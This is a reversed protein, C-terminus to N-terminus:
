EGQVINYIYIRDSNDSKSSTIIRELKFNKKGSYELKGLTAIKTRSIDNDISTALNLKHTRDAYIEYFKYDLTDEKVVLTTDEALNESVLDLDNSFNNAVAPTYRYGYIFYTLNPVIILGLLITLPFIAFVRAYPNEPFLGYWKELVYRLGHAVLIALPLLLLIASDPNLGALFVTSVILCSAIANRSAFFGKATSFLGTLALAFTSLGIM